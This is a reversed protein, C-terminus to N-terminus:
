AIATVFHARIKGEIPGSGFHKELAEAAKETIERLRGPARAEIEISLPSGMCYGIAADLASAARSLHDVTEFEISSFGAVMVDASIKEFNCYGHPIREMFRPPDDPFLEALKDGLVAIFENTEVGDWVAFIYRGNPRLMRRAERFGKVKDPFFMVGFQCVVVDFLGDGFPLALGDAQKWSVRDDVGGRAIATDLMPMNLDTATIQVDPGLAAVMARTVVGTGAAIELVDKPNLRAIRQAVDEAYPVFIMPVMYREYNAPTNGAFINDAM